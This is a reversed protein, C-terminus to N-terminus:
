KMGLNTYDGIKDVKNALLSPPSHSPHLVLGVVYMSVRRPYQKWIGFNFWCLSQIWSRQHVITHITTIHHRRREMVRHEEFHISPTGQNINMRYSRFRRLPITSSTSVVSRLIVSTWAQHFLDLSVSWLKGYEIFLFWSFGFNSRWCVKRIYLIAFQLDNQRFIEDLM